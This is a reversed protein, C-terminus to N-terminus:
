YEPSEYKTKHPSKMVYADLHTKGALRAAAVRHHGDAVEFKGARKVLVPPPVKAGSAYGQKARQVRHDYPDHQDHKADAVKSLPVKASTYTGHEGGDHEWANEGDPDDHTAHALTLAADHIGDDHDEPDGAGYSEPHAAKIDDWQKGLAAHTM